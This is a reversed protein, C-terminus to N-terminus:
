EDFFDDFFEDDSVEHYKNEEQLNMNPKINEDIMELSQEKIKNILEDISEPNTDEEKLNNDPLEIKFEDEDITKLIDKIERDTIDQKFDFDNEKSTDLEVNEKENLPIEPKVDLINADQNAKMEEEALRKEEAEIEAIKADLNKLVKDIDLKSSDASPSPADFLGPFPPAFGGGSPFPSGSFGPMGGFPNSEKKKEKVFERVDFVKVERRERPIIESISAKKFTRGWDMKYDPTLKTKFPAMRLRRVIVENMKLKQLDSITILPRTEEKEKDDKGTKVKIEGCMKSIEELARLETSILYIMNGCNGKITEADHEGYVENLQAFNQIIMTFRMLRSRAATIMTTVDKLPPMNAFEDLLFNTRIPLEGGCSQAVDILTEYIQKILITVLSHYTKKEDQIVIFLATKKKGIDEINFDSYSLMESLNARSAFLKIKQKFVALISMKTDSPALITSSASVYEPSNPDKTNFYEKIYTSGGLKEEGVTTMLSISNLNIQEEDADAFLSLALGSFYDASTKEWFPDANKNGEDYLINAALDELLEIAKDQNGSKWLNYPLSLPNWANGRGPDRFNLLVINYGKSRLMNSKKEYLEGKPDTIIMSEGHKSLLEILPYIIATTKGSGTSGIVLNHYESNDVYIKKGDNILAIGAHETKLDTPRVLNLQKKMDKPDCWKSYGDSKKETTFGFGKEFEFFYSKSSMLLAIIAVIFFVITPMLLDGQFAPIPNLGTFEGTATISSLNSIAIAVFYLIVLCVIGFRKMDKPDYRLKLNM